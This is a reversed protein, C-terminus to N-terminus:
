CGFKVSTASDNQPWTFFRGFDGNNSGKWLQNIFAQEYYLCVSTNFGNFEHFEVYSVCNDWSHNSGSNPACYGDGTQVTVTGLNSYQIAYCIRLTDGGNQHESIDVYASSCSQVGAGGAAAGTAGLWAFTLLIAGLALAALLRDIARRRTSITM